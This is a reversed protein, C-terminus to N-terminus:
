AAGVLEMELHDVATLGARDPQQNRMAEEGARLIEQKHKGQSVIGAPRAEGATGEANSSPCTSSVGAPALDQSV